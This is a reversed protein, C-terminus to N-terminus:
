NRQQVSVKKWSVFNAGTVNPSASTILMGSRSCLGPSNTRSAGIKQKKVVRPIWRHSLRRGYRPMLTKGTESRSSCFQCPPGVNERQGGDMETEPIKLAYWLFEMATATGDNDFYGGDGFHYHSYKVPVRPMPSVYPFNASLRAASSLPLDSGYIRLFSDAPIIESKENYQDPVIYNASLFRNGTEAITTNFSFAPATRVKWALDGLTEETGGVPLKETKCLPYHRNRWFGQQLAWGRDYTDLDPSLLFHRYPYIVRIFDAYTLGWAVAQLESCEAVLPMGDVSAKSFAGEVKLYEAAWPVTGVSGGSVTSM